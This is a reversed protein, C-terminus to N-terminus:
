VLAKLNSQLFYCVICSIIIKCVYVHGEQKKCLLCSHFSWCFWWIGEKSMKLFHSLTINPIKACGGKKKTIRTMKWSKSGESQTATVSVLDYFQESGFKTSILGEQYYRPRETQESSKTSLAFKIWLYIFSLVKTQRMLYIYDKM